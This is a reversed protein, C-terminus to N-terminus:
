SQLFSCPAQKATLATPNPIMPLLFNYQYEPFMANWVEQAGTTRKHIEEAASFDMSIMGIESDAAEPWTKGAYNIAWLAMDAGVRENDLGVYPHALAGYDDMPKATSPMWSVGAENAIEIVRPYISMDTEFIFGNTGQDIYTQLTSLFVNSDDNASFSSYECNMREAWDGYAQSYLDYIAGSYYMMYVVNYRPSSAYNMDADYYYETSQYQRQGQITEDPYQSAAPSAAPAASQAPASTSSADSVAPEPDETEEIDSVEAEDEDEKDSLTYQPEKQQNIYPIGFLVFLVGCIVVFVGAAVLVINRTRKSKKSMAAPQNKAEPYATVGTHVSSAPLGAGGSQASVEGCNM